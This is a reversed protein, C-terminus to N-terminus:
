DFSSKGRSLKDPACVAVALRRAADDDASVALPRRFGNPLGGVARVARRGAQVKGAASALFISSGAAAAPTKGANM